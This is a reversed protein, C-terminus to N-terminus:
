IFQRYMEHVSIINSPCSSHWMWENPKPPNDKCRLDEDPETILHCQYLLSIFHGRNKRSKHIVENVALPAYEFEVEAGLENKAVAKVRESITEKYRIIGGPVHWGPPYYGDDRWTLLTQNQEDKILLDVNIIPTIRTIFLFLEEPLGISPNPVASELVEIIEELDLAM